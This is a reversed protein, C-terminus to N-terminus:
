TERPDRHLLREGDEFAIGERVVVFFLLDTGGPAARYSHRVDADLTLSEGPRVVRGSSEIMAGELVLTTERGLHRHVPFPAGAALRAFGRICAAAAPGGEVWLADLGPVLDRQWSSADGLRELLERAKDVTVDILAAIPAAFRALRGPRATAELLRARRIATPEIPALATVLAALVEADRPELLTTLDDDAGHGNM